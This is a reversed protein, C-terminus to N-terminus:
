ELFQKRFNKLNKPKVYNKLEDILTEIEDESRENDNKTTSNASLKHISLNSNRSNNSNTYECVINYLTDINLESYKYYRHSITGNLLFPAYDGNPQINIYWQNKEQAIIKDVILKWLNKKKPNNTLYTNALISKIMLHTDDIILLVPIQQSNFYGYYAKHPQRDYESTKHHIIYIDDIEQYKINIKYFRQREFLDRKYREIMESINEVAEEVPGEGSAYKKILEWDERSFNLGLKPLYNVLSKLNNEKNLVKELKSPFHIDLQIKNKLLFFEEQQQMKAELLVRMIMNVVNEPWCQKLSYYILPLNFYQNQNFKKYNKIDSEIQTFVPDSHKFLDFSKTNNILKIIEETISKTNKYFNSLNIEELEVVIFVSALIASVIAKIDHAMYNEKGFEPIKIKSVHVMKLLNNLHYDAAGGSSDIKNIEDLIPVIHKRKKIADYLDQHKSMIVKTVSLNKETRDGESTHEDYIKFDKNYNENGGIGILVSNKLFPYTNINIEKNTLVIEDYYLSYNTVIGMEKFFLTSYLLSACYNDLSANKRSIIKENLKGPDETFLFNKMARLAYYYLYSSINKISGHNINDNKSEFFDEKINM